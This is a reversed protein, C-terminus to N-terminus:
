VQNLTLLGLLFAEPTGMLESGRGLYQLKARAQLLETQSLALAGQISKIEADIRSGATKDAMRLMAKMRVTYYARLRELLAGREGCHVSVQRVVEEFVQHHMAEKAHLDRTGVAALQSELQWVLVAAESRNSPRGREGVYGHRMSVPNIAKPELANPLTAAPSSSWVSAHGRASQSGNTLPPLTTGGLISAPGAVISSPDASRDFTERAMLQLRPSQMNSIRVRPSPMNPIPVRPSPMNPIPLPPQNDSLASLEARRVRQSFNIQNYQHMGKPQPHFGKHLNRQKSRDLPLTNGDALYSSFVTDVVTM